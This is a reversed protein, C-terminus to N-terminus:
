GVRTYAYVGRISYNYYTGDCDIAFWAAAIAPPVGTYYYIWPRGDLPPPALAKRYATFEVLLTQSAPFYECLYTYACKPRQQTFEAM